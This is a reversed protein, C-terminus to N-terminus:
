DLSFALQNLALALKTSVKNYFRKNEYAVIWRIGYKIDALFVEDSILIDALTLKLESSFIYGNETALKRIIRYMPDIFAGEEVSVTLVKNTRVLFILSATTCAIRKSPNLVVLEDVNKEKIKSKALNLIFNCALPHSYLVGKPKPCFTFVGLNLGKKSLDFKYEDLKCYILTYQTKSKSAFCEYIHILVLGGKLSRNKHLLKVITDELQIEDFDALSGLLLLQEKLANYTFKSLLVVSGSTRVYGTALLTSDILYDSCESCSVFSNNIWNFTNLTM